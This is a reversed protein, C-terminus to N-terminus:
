LRMKRTIEIEETGAHALEDLYQEPPICAEPMLVGKGKTQGRGVMVAAIAVRLGARAVKEEKSLSSIHYEVESGNKEGRVVVRTEWRIDAPKTEPALQEVLASLVEWPLVMQGQVNLPNKGFFGLGRFFIVKTCFDPDEGTKVSIYKLDPFSRSLSIVAANPTQAITVAGIPERFKFVEPKDRPPGYHLKGDEYYISNVSYRFRTAGGLSSGWALPQSHEEPSVLDRGGSKADISDSRALKNIGYAAMIQILGTLAGVGPIALLEKKKFEDSLALQEPASPGGGLETYNVGAELAAETTTLKLDAYNEDTRYGEYVCNVIVDAGKFVETANGIDHVDLFKAVLRKDGLGAVLEKVKDLRRAGVVIQAVDKQKLLYWIAGRGQRGTGGAVVLKM